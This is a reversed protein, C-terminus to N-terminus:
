RILVFEQKLSQGFHHVKGSTNITLSLQQEAAVYVVQGTSPSLYYLARGSGGADLVLRHQLQAGEGHALLTDSRQVVIVPAGEYITDGAVLYSRNTHVTTPIMGQCGALEVSDRWRTGPLLMAPFPLLLTRLDIRLASEVPSCREPVPETNAAVQLSDNILLTDNILIGSLQIPLAPTEAAVTPNQTTVLTDALIRFRITDGLRELLLLEHTFNSITERRSASDSRDEIEANRTIRYSGVGAVYQFTWNQISPAHEVAGPIESPPLPPRPRRTAGTACAIPFVLFLFRCARIERVRM